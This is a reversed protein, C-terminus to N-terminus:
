ISPHTTCWLALGLDLKEVVTALSALSDSRSDVTPHHSTCDNILNMSGFSGLTYAEAPSTPWM